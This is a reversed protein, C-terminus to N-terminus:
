KVAGVTLGSVFYRQFFPYALALPLTAIVMTAMMLTQDPLQSVVEVAYAGLTAANNTLYQASEEIRVLFYQLTDLSSSDIYLKANFWDNWYTLTSFLGITAAVPLSLPLIMKGFITLESAGDITASEVISDPISTMFYTRAIFIWFPNVTLPLILAWLTDNLHLVQTMIMYNATMGANFLMTIFIFMSLSNRWKFTKRSLVYGLTLTIFLVIATGLLTVLITNGYAQLLKQWNMFLFQYTETTFEKPILSFGQAKLSAESTFSISVALLYPFVCAFGIIGMIATIVVNAPKSISYISKNM